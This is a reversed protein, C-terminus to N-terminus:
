LLKGTIQIICSLASLLRETGGNRGGTLAAGESPRQPQPLVRRVSSAPSCARVAQACRLSSLPLGAPQAQCLGARLVHTDPHPARLPVRFVRACVRTAACTCVSGCAGACVDWCKSVCGQVAACTREWM